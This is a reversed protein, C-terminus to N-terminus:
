LLFSAAVIAIGIWLVVKGFATRFFAALLYITVRLAVLGAVLVGAWYLGNAGFAAHILWGAVVVMLGLTLAALVKGVFQGVTTRFFARVLAVVIATALLLVGIIFGATWYSGVRDGLWLFGILLGVALWFSGADRSGSGVSTNTGVRWSENKQDKEWPLPQTMVQYYYDDRRKQADRAADYARDHDAAQYTYPRYPNKPDGM